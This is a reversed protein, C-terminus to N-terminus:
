DVVLSRNAIRPSRRELNRDSDEGRTSYYETADSPAREVEDMSVREETKSTEITRTHHGKSDQWSFRKIFTLASTTHSKKDIGDSTKYQMVLPAPSATAATSQRSEPDAEVPASLSRARGKILAMFAQSYMALSGTVLAGGPILLDKVWIGGICFGTGTLFVLVFVARYSKDTM